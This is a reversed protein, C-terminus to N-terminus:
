RGRCSVMPCSSWVGTHPKSPYRLTGLSGPWAPRTRQGNRERKWLRSCHQVAGRLQPEAVWRGAESRVIGSRHGCTGYVALPQPCSVGGGLRTTGSSKNVHSDTTAPHSYFASGQSVAPPPLAQYGAGNLVAATDLTGPVTRHPGAWWVAPERTGARDRRGWGVKLPRPLAGPPPPPRRRSTSPCCRRTRWPLTCPSSPRWPWCRPSSRWSNSHFVRMSTAGHGDGSLPCSLARFCAEESAALSALVRFLAPRLPDPLLSLVSSGTPHPM